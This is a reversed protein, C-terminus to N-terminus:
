LQCKGVLGDAALQHVRLLLERETAPTFDMTANVINDQLIAHLTDVHGLLLRRDMALPFIFDGNPFRQDHARAAALQEPTM